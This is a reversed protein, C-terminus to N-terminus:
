SFTLVRTPTEPAARVLLPALLMVCPGKPANRLDMLELFYVNRKLLFLHVDEKQLFRKGPDICVCDTGIGAIKRQEFLFVAVELSWGPFRHRKHEESYNMYAKEDNLKTDWGSRLSVFAGEPITGHEGEWEALDDMTLECDPDEASKESIDIVAGFVLQHKVPMDDIKNCGETDYFFHAPSDTHTGYGCM